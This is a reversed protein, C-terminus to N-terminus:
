LRLAQATSAVGMQSLFQELLETKGSSYFSAKGEQKSPAMLQFQSLVAKTQRAVAEASDILQVQSPLLEKLLPQLFPYHTCGLVLVDINQALLPELHFQLLKRLDPSGLAGKEIAEVLGAGVREHLTIGQTHLDRTQHFLQSSLTGKTALVGVHKSSTQLAAPKIAPEIGIFPVAYSARLESIANTTATNCAVVILKCGKHLLHQTLKHCRELLLSQAKEGYPAYSSDAIYHTSEEPMAKRIESWISLGGFGSDFLGIPATNM